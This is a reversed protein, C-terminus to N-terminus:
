EFNNEKCAIQYGYTFASYNNLWYSVDARSLYGGSESIYVIDSNRANSGNIPNEENPLGDDGRELCGHFYSLRILDDRTLNWTTTKVWADHAKKEVGTRVTQYGGNMDIYARPNRVSNRTSNESNKTM